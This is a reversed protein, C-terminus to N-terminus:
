EVLDTTRMTFPRFAFMPMYPDPDVSWDFARIQHASRRGTVARFLEFPEVDLAGVAPRDASPAPEGTLMAAGIAEGPDTPPVSGGGVMWARDDSRVAIPPLGLAAVGHAVFVSLLLDTSARVADSDRAGPSALADRLDHEHVTLDAVVQAGYRGPFEDIYSAMAPGVVDWEQLVDTISRKRRAEVQAATWDDTAAGGINGSVVDAALGCVHALVDKVSWSPCAPVPASEAFDVDRGLGCIVRVIRQRTQEYM